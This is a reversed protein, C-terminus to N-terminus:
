PRNKLSADESVILLWPTVESVRGGFPAVLAALATAPNGLEYLGSVRRARLRGDLILILGGRYRGLAEAAEGVTEDEVVKRGSRWSGVREPSIRSQSVADASLSLREGAGLSAVIPEGRRRVAVRGSAVAVTSEHRGVSVDFATGVDTMSLGAARVKFPRGKPDHGVTFFVEGKLVDVRREASSYDVTIASDAGLAATGGDALQVTRVQGVGTADTTRVALWLNPGLTLAVVTAALGAAVRAPPRGWAREWGAPKHLAGRPGVAGTLRWAREAREYAKAHAPAASRWAEAEARLSLDDPRAQVELFWAVARDRIATAGGAGQITM